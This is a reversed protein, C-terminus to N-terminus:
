RSLTTNLHQPLVWIPVLGGRVAAMGQLAHVRGREERRRQLSATVAGEVAVWKEEGGM